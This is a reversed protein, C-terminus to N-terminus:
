HNITEVDKLEEVAMAVDEPAVPVAMGVVGDVDGM